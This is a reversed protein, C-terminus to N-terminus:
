FTRVRVVSVKVKETKAKESEGATGRLEERVVSDSLVCEVMDSEREDNAVTGLSVSTLLEQARQIKESFEWTRDM